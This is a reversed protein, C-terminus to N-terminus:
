KPDAGWCEYRKCKLHLPAATKSKVVCAGDSNCTVKFDRTISPLHQRVHVRARTEHRARQGQRKINDYPGSKITAVLGMIVVGLIVLALVVEWDVSPLRWPGKISAKPLSM